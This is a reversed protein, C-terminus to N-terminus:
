NARWWVNRGGNFLLPRILNRVVLPITAPETKIDLQISSIQLRTVTGTNDLLGDNNLFHYALECTAKIIRPPVITSDLNTRYGLRPDFYEGLRPFVLDQTDSVATGVWRFTEFYGSATILAQEKLADTASTWAAVDLRDEFYADAEAQTVYSNTGKTLAM